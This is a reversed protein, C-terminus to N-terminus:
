ATADLEDSELDAGSYILQVTRLFDMVEPLNWGFGDHLQQVEPNEVASIWEIHQVDLRATQDNQTAVAFAVLLYRPEKLLVAHTYQDSDLSIIIHRNSTVSENNM